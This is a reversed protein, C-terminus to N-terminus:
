WYESLLFDKLHVIRIGNENGVDLINTTVVYKPYHDPIDMLNGVERNSDQLFSSASKSTSKRAGVNGM